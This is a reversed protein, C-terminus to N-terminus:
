PARTVVQHRKKELLFTEFTEIELLFKMLKTDTLRKFEVEGRRKRYEDTAIALLRESLGALIRAYRSVIREWCGNIWAWATGLDLPDYRVRVSEGELPRLLHANFWVYNIKVGNVTVKATGKPTTPSTVLILRADYPIFHGERPGFRAVSREYAQRPTMLIGSHLLTDYIEYLFERTKFDLAELTWIALNRPNVAQTVQRVNKTVKTNGTLHHFFNTNATGFLREMPAGYRPESPPRDILHVKLFSCLTRFWNSRFEKGRDVVIRSPLQNFRKICERVLMLVSRYSPPEYSLYMALVRRSAHDILLSLWARGANEGSESFITELDVETHDAHAQLWAITPEINVDDVTEGPGRPAIQYAAKSGLRALTVKYKDLSKLYRCLWSYSPSPLGKEECVLAIEAHLAKAHIGRKDLYKENTKALVLDLVAKQLRTVRNGRDRRKPILGILGNGFSDESAKFDAIYRRLTRSQPAHKLGALYPEIQGLHQVATELDEPATEALTTLADERRADALSKAGETLVIGKADLFEQLQTHKLRTFVGAAELVCEEVGMNAVRHVVGDWLVTDDKRLMRQSHREWESARVISAESAKFADLTQQDKFIHVSEYRTLDDTTPDIWLKQQTIARFVDTIDANPRSLNLLERITPTPHEGFEALLAGQRTLREATPTGECFYDFLVEINSVRMRNFRRSTWVEHTFGLAAAAADAAPCIWQGDSNTAFAREGAAISRRIDAEEHLSILRVGDARITLFTPAKLFARNRGGVRVIHKLAPPFDLFVRYSPDTELECLAALGLRGQELGFSVGMGPSAYRGTVHGRPRRSPGKVTEIIYNKGAPGIGFKIVAAAIENLAAARPSAVKGTDRTTMARTLSTSSSAEQPRGATAAEDVEARVDDQELAVADAIEEAFADAPTQSDEMPNEMESHLFHLPTTDRKPECHCTKAPQKRSWFAM